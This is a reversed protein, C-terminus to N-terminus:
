QKGMQRGHPSPLLPYSHNTFFCFKGHSPGLSSGAGQPSGKPRALLSRM